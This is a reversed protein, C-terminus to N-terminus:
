LKLWKIEKLDKVLTNKYIDLSPLKNNEKTFFNIPYPTFHTESKRKMKM